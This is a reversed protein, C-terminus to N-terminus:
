GIPNKKVEIPEKGPFWSSENHLFWRLHIWGAVDFMIGSELKWIWLLFVCLNYNVEIKNLVTESVKLLNLFGLFPLLCIIRIANWFAAGICQAETQQGISKLSAIYVQVDITHHTISMKTVLDPVGGSKTQHVKSVQNKYYTKNNNKNIPRVQLPQKKNNNRESYLTSNCFVNAGRQRQKEAPCADFRLLPIWKGLHKVDQDERPKPLDNSGKM